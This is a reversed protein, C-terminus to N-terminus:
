RVAQATPTSAESTSSTHKKAPIWVLALIVGWVVIRITMAVLSDPAVFYRYVTLLVVMVAAHSGLMLWTLPLAAAHRRWLLVSMVLLSLMGVTYNYLPLWVIVNYDPVRGLLVQGGAVVAMAGIVVALGAAIRALSTQM